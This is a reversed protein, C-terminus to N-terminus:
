SLDEEGLLWFPSHCKSMICLRHCMYAARLFQSHWSSGTLTICKERGASCRETCTVRSMDWCLSWLLFLWWAAAATVTEDRLVTLFSLLLCLLGLKQQTGSLFNHRPSHQWLLLIAAAPSPRLPCASTCMHCVLPGAATLPLPWLVESESFSIPDSSDGTYPMKTYKDSSLVEGKEFQWLVFQRCLVLPKPSKVWSPFFVQM